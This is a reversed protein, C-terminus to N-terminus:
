LALAEQALDGDHAFAPARQQVVIREEAGAQVVQAAVEAQGVRRRPRVGPHGGALSQMPEPPDSGGAAISRASNRVRMSTARWRPRSIPASFRGIMVRSIPGTSYM